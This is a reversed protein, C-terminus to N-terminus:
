LNFSLGNLVIYDNHPAIVSPFELLLLQKETTVLPVSSCMHRHVLLARKPDQVSGPYKTALPMQMCSHEIKTVPVLRDGSRGGRYQVRVRASGRVGVGVTVRFGLRM